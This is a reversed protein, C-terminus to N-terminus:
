FWKEFNSLKGIYKQIVYNNTVNSNTMYKMIDDLNNCFEIGVIFGLTYM